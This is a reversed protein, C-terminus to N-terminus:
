MICCREGEVREGDQQFLDEPEEYGIRSLRKSVQRRKTERVSQEEGAGNTLVSKYHDSTYWKQGKMQINSPPEHLGDTADSSWVTLTGKADIKAQRNFKHTTDIDGSLRILQWGSISVEKDSNNRLRIFKGGIEDEVIEVDGNVISSSEFEAESADIEQELRKRKVVRLPTRRGGSPTGERARKPSLSLRREEGELLKRYTAIENDLAVKTDMLDQYDTLLASKESVLRDIELDRELLLNTFKNHDADLRKELEKIKSLLGSKEGEIKSLSLTLTEVRSSLSSVEDSKSQSSNQIRKLQAKLDAVKQEYIGDLEEKNSRLAGEYEARLEQLSQQLKLEYEQQLRGDVEQIELTRRTRIETIEQEYCRSKFTLEETKTKLQSELDSRVMIEQDLQRRLADVEKALNHVEDQLDKREQLLNDRESGLKNNQATLDQFRSDLQNLQRAVTTAEKVKKDLKDKTDHLDKKLQNNELELRAREKATEDIVRRSDVLEKEYTDKVRTVTRLMTEESKGLQKTISANENELQQNREIYAALRDNLSALVNKEQIRSLRTPTIPSQVSSTSSPVQAPTQQGASSSTAASRKASKTSM